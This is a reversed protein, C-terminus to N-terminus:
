YDVKYRIKAKKIKEELEVGWNHRNANNLYTLTESNFTSIALDIRGPSCSLDGVPVYIFNYNKTLLDLKQCGRGCDGNTGTTLLLPIRENIFIRSIKKLNDLISSDIEQPKTHYLFYDTCLKISCYLNSYDSTDGIIQSFEKKILQRKFRRNNLLSDEISIISSNRYEVGQCYGYCGILYFILVFRINM